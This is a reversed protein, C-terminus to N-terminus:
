VNFIKRAEESSNINMYINGHECNKHALSKRDRDDGVNYASSYGKNLKYDQSDDSGRWVTRMVESKDSDGTSDFTFESGAKAFITVAVLTLYFTQILRVFTLYIM